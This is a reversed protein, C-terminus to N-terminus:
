KRCFLSNIAMKPGNAEIVEDIGEAVVHYRKAM